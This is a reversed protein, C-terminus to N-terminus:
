VDCTVHMLGAIASAAAHEPIFCRFSSCDNVDVTQCAGTGCM